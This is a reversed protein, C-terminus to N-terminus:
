QQQLSQPSFGYGQAKWSRITGVNRPKHSGGGDEFHMVGSEGEAMVSGQERSKRGRILGKHHCKPGMLFGLVM